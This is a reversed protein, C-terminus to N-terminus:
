LATLDINMSQIKSKGLQRSVETRIISKAVERPDVEYKAKAVIEKVQRVKKVRLEDGRRALLEAIRQLERAKKSINVRASEVTRSVETRRDRGTSSAAEDDQILPSFNTDERGKRSIKMM